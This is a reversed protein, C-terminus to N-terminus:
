YVWPVLRRTGRLYSAYREGFADVLLREEGRARLDQVVWLAAAIAWQAPTHIWLASGLGLLGFALYLPHRVWRFPGETCLEHGADLTAKLRYSRFVAIAWAAVGGGLLVLAFGLAGRLPHPMSPDATTALWLAPYVAVLTVIHLRVLATAAFSAAVPAETTAAEAPPAAEGESDDREGALMRMRAVLFAIWFVSHAYFIWRSPRLFYELDM